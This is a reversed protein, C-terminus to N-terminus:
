RPQDLVVLYGVQSEHDPSCDGTRPNHPINCRYQFMGGKNAVFTLTEQGTPGGPLGEKTRVGYAQIEFGHRAFTLNMVRLRLTDGRRVVLMSPNFFHHKSEGVAGVGTIIVSLDVTVSDTPSPPRPAQLASPISLASFLLAAAGLVAALASSTQSTM